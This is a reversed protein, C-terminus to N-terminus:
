LRGRIATQLLSYQGRLLEATVNHLMANQAMESMQKEVFRNNGDHFLINSDAVPEAQAQLRGRGDWQLQRTSAVELSAGAGRSSRRDVAERLAGFFAEKSLDKMKYGVTDFNSVNNALVAQRSETFSMVRELVPASGRNLLGEILM